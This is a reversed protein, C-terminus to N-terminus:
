KKVSEQADAGQLLTQIEPPLSKIDIGGLSKQLTNIDIGQLNKQLADLNIGKLDKPLNNFDILKKQDFMELGRRQIENLFPTLVFTAKEIIPAFSSKQLANTLDVSVPFSKIIFIALGILLAGELIGIIAGGLRNTLKVLPIRFVRIIKDLITIFIGFVFGTAYFLIICAAINAVNGAIFAPFQSLSPKIYAAVQPFYMSAVWLSLFFGILSGIQKILGRVLGLILFVGLIILIISDINM